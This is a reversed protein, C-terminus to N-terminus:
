KLYRIKIDTDFKNDFFTSNLKQKDYVLALSNNEIYMKIINDFESIIRDVYETKKREIDSKTLSINTDKDIVVQGNSILVDEEFIKEAIYAKSYNFKSLLDDITMVKETGLDINTTIFYSRESNDFIQEDLKFNIQYFISLVTGNIQTKINTYVSNIPIYNDNLKIENYYGTIYEILKEEEDLFNQVNDKPINKINITSVNISEYVDSYNNFVVPKTEIYDKIDYTVFINKDKTAYGQKEFIVYLGFGSLLLFIAVAIVLVKAGKDSMIVDEKKVINYYIKKKKFLM